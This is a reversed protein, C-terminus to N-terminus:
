RARVRACGERIAIFEMDPTIIGRRAYHLQTVAAAPKARLTRRRLAPFQEINARPDGDRVGNDQPRVERGDYAEVDARGSGAHASRRCAPAPTPRRPRTQTPGAPTTSISPQMPTPTPRPSPSKASPCACTTQAGSLYVKRSNAAALADASNLRPATDLM